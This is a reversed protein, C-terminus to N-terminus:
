VKIETTLRKRLQTITLSSPTHKYVKDVWGKHFFKGTDELIYGPYSSVDPLLAMENLVWSGSRIDVFFDCRLNPVTSARALALTNKKLEHFFMRHLADFTDRDGKLYEGEKGLCVGGGNRLGVFLLEGWATFFKMEIPGRVEKPHSFLTQIILGPEIDSLHTDIKGVTNTLIRLEIWECFTNYDSIVKKSDGMGKDGNKPNLFKSKLKGNDFYVKLTEISESGNAPKIIFEQQNKVANVVIQFLRKIESEELLRSSSGLMEELPILGKIWKRMMLKNGFFSVEKLNKHTLFPKNVKHMLSQYDDKGTYAVMEAM